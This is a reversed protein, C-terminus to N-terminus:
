SIDVKLSFQDEESFAEFTLILTLTLLFIFIQQGKIILIVWTECALKIIYVILFIFRVINYLSTSLISTIEKKKKSYIRTM